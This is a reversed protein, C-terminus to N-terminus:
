KLNVILVNNKSKINSKLGSKDNVIVKAILNSKFGFWKTTDVIFVKNFVVIKCPELQLLTDLYFVRFNHKVKIDIVHGM